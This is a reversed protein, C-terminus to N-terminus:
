NTHQSHQAEVRNLGHVVKRATNNDFVRVDEDDEEYVSVSYLVHCAKHFDGM